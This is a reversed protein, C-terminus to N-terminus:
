SWPVWRYHASAALQEDPKEPTGFMLYGLWILCSLIYAGSNIRSLTARALYGSHSMEAGVLMKVVSFCGFGLTVGFLIRNKAIGLRKGFFILVALLGCQVIRLARESSLIADTWASSVGGHSRTVAAVYVALVIAVTWPALKSVWGMASDFPRACHGVIELCVALSLAVSIALVVYYAYYYAYFYSEHGFALISALVVVDIVNLLTYNFFYFYDRYLHRRLMVALVGIQIVPAAFWLVYAIPSLHM